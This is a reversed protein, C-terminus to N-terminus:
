WCLTGRFCSLSAETVVRQEEAELGCVSSQRPVLPLSPLPFFDVPRQADPIKEVLSSLIRM